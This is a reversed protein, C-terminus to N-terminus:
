PRDARDAASTRAPAARAPDPPIKVDRGLYVIFVCRWGDSTLFMPGWGLPDKFTKRVNGYLCDKLAEIRAPDGLDAGLGVGCSISASVAPQVSGPAYYDISRYANKTCREWEGVGHQASAPAAPLLLATAAAVVVLVRRM